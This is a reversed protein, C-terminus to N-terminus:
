AVRRRESPPKRLPQYIDDLSLGAEAVLRKVLEPRPHRQLLRYSTAARKDVGYRREFEKDGISSIYESLTM